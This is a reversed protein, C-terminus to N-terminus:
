IPETSDLIRPTVGVMVVNGADAVVTRDPLGV